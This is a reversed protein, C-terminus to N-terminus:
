YDCCHSLLSQFPLCFDSFFAWTWMVVRLFILRPLQTSPHLWGLDQNWKKTVLLLKDTSCFSVCIHESKFGVYQIPFNVAYERKLSRQAWRLVGLSRLVVQIVPSWFLNLIDPEAHLIVWCDRSRRMWLSLCTCVETVWPSCLISTSKLRIWLLLRCEVAFM